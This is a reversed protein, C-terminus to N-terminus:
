IGFGYPHVVRFHCGVGGCVQQMAASTQGVEAVQSGAFQPRDFHGGRNNAVPPKAAPNMPRLGKAEALHLPYPARGVLIQGFAM